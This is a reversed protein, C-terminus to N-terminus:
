WFRYVNPDREYARRLPTDPEEGFQLRSVLAIAAGAVFGGLHAMYAVGGLQSDALSSYGGVIQLGVWLVIEVVAPVSIIKIFFLVYVRNRPFLVLYAGLVGSIAGSAGIMPTLSNPSVVIQALSAALGSALYFILFKVHGLRHEVNDGFIWLYLMNGLLHAWSGHLFISTLLTLYIPWPGPQHPIEVAENESVPLLISEAIDQGSTLEAAVAGFRYTFAPDGLQILFMAVNAAILIWTVYAPKVLEKDDDSLPILM